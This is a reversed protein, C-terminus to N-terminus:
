LKSLVQLAKNKILCDYHEGFYASMMETYKECHGYETAINCIRNFDEPSLHKNNMELYYIGTIPNKYLTSSGKFASGLVKALLTVDNLDDFSFLKTLEVEKATAETEGEPAEEEPIVGAAKAEQIAQFVDEKIKKFMNLVEDAGKYNESDFDTADTETEADQHIASSFRSFRTDLEDPSEVKTIILIICDSSVPIAEIVLPIDDAEFGLEESAQTMMEHFLAKAKESGYALESLKLHRDTLDNKNLTCRIQNESLRELKM